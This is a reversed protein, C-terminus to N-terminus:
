IFDSIFQNLFAETATQTSVTGLIKRSKMDLKPEEEDVQGMQFSSDFGYDESRYQMTIGIDYLSIDTAVNRVDKSNVTYLDELKSPFVIREISTVSKERSVLPKRKEPLKCVSFFRPLFTNEEVQKIVIDVLKDALLDEHSPKENENIEKSSNQKSNAM